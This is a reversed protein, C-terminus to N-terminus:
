FSSAPLLKKGTEIAKKLLRVDPLIIEQQGDVEEEVANEKALETSPTTEVNSSRTNLFIYSGLSAAILLAILITRTNEKKM